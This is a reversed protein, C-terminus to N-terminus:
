ALVGLVRLIGVTGAIVGSVVIVSFCTITVLGIIQGLVVAFREAWKM